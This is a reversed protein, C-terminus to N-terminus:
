RSIEMKINPQQMQQQQQQMQHQQQQTHQVMGQQQLQQQQQAFQQQQPTLQQLQVQQQPQQQQHQPQMSLPAGSVPMKKIQTFLDNYQHITDVPQFIDNMRAMLHPHPDQICDGAWTQGSERLLDWCLSPVCCPGYEIEVIIAKFHSAMTCSGIKVVFDSLAWRLGKVEIRASKKPTYFSSLSVLINEFITDSVITCQSGEMISFASAPYDSHTILNLTKGSGNLINQSPYYTDCDVTFAGVKKAGLAELQAVYVDVMQSGMGDKIPLFHVTSVVM